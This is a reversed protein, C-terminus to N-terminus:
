VALRTLAQVAAFLDEPSQDWDAALAVALELSDEDLTDFVRCSSVLRDPTSEWGAAFSVALDRASASLTDFGADDLEALCSVNDPPSMDYSTDPSAGLVGVGLGALSAVKDTLALAVQCLQVSRALHCCALFTPPDDFWGLTLAHPVSVVHLSVAPTNSGLPCACFGDPTEFLVWSSDALLVDKVLEPTVQTVRLQPEDTDSLELWWPCLPFSARVAALHTALTADSLDVVPAPTV